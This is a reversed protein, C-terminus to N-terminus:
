VGFSCCKTQGMMMRSITPFICIVEGCVTNKEEEDDGDVYDTEEERLLGVAVITVGNDFSPM